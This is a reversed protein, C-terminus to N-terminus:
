TIKDGNLIPDTMHLRGGSLDAKVARAGDISVLSNKGDFKLLTIQKKVGGANELVVKDGVKMFNDVVGGNLPTVVVKSNLVVNEDLYSKIEGVLDDKKKALAAEEELCSFTEKRKLTKLKENLKTLIEQSLKKNGLQALIKARQVENLTEEALAKRGFINKMASNKVNKLM